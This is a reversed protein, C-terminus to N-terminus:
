ALFAVSSCSLAGSHGRLFGRIFLLVLEAVLMQGDSKINADTGSVQLREPAQNRQHVMLFLTPCGPMASRKAM